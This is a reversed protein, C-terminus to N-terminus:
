SHIHQISADVKGVEGAQSPVRSDCSLWLFADHNQQGTGSSCVNFSFGTSRTNKRAHFQTDLMPSRGGRLPFQALTEDSEAECM